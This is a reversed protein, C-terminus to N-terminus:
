RVGFAIANKAKAVDYCFTEKALDDNSRTCTVKANPIM